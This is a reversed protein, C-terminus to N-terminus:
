QVIVKKTTTGNNTTMKVFYMGKAFTSVDMTENFETSAGITRYAVIKGDGSTLSLEVDSQATNSYSITIFDTAPNPVIVLNAGDIENVGLCAEVIVNQTVADTCGNVTVTYTITHTGLGATAPNFSGGTVGTGTYTGGAPTGGTLTVAANYVCMDALATMAAVPVENVTVSTTATGTCNNADTFTYTIPFTGDGSVAPNFSTGTVSSGSFMGGAPTGTLTVPAADECVAALTGITVVPNANFTVTASGTGVSACGNIPTAVGAVTYTGSTTANITYPSTAQSTVPVNTTGDSYAFSWPGTGTLTVTVPITGTGCQTGGGSVVATPTPNVTVSFTQADAPCVGAAVITNTVTYTGATSASLDIVGTTTNLALGTTASFAGASAGAGFVPAPDTGASCYAASAYTFTADPSDTLTVSQTSTASCAGGTTYTVTYTGNTSTGMNIEGTSANIVLGATSSFTGGATTVTPTENAGGTCLTSASYAFAASPTPTVTVTQTSSTPSTCGASTVSVTYTGATSVTISPTTAGNSWTNGTAASSTLTVSGGSCFSTPGGATITPTAPVPNVTVVSPASTSSCGGATVATTYSGAASVTISQTTAGNSWLNGTAASSTLTVSGGACFTTPGGATVTPVAPAPNIVLPDTANDVCSNSFGGLTFLTATYSGAAPYTYTNTTNAGWIVPTANGMNWAYTSDVAALGFYELFANFNSMRNSLIGSPTTTNTFVVPTGLCSPDTATTFSTNITYSVIPSMILEFDEEGETFSLIPDWVGPNPYDAYDSYFRSLGEDQPQGPLYDNLYCSLIGDANTPQLVVAYNGTVTIPTAFTVYRYAMTTTNFTVSGSGIATTPTGGADVNYISAAVTLTAASGVATSRAGVFEVGRITLSGTNEFTQSVFENDAQWVSFGTYFDGTGLALEKFQSYRLTDLCLLSKELSMGSSPAKSILFDKQAPQLNMTKPSQGWSTMSLAATFSCM